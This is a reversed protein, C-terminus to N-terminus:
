KCYGFIYINFCVFLLCTLKILADVISSEAFYYVCYQNCISSVWETCLSDFLYSKPPVAGLVSHGYFFHIRRNICNNCGVAWVAIPFNISSPFKAAM